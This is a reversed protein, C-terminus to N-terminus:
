PVMLLWTHNASEVNEICERKEGHPDISDYYEARSRCEGKSRYDNQVKGWDIGTAVEHSDQNGILIGLGILVGAIPIASATAIKRGLSSWLVSRITTISLM